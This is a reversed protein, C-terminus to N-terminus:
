LVEEYLPLSRLTYGPWRRWVGFLTWSAYSGPILTLTGLILFPGSGDHNPHTFYFDLAVSFLVIGLMLMGIAVLATRMPVKIGIRGSPMPRFEDEAEIEVQLHEDFAELRASDDAM